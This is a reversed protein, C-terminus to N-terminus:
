FIEDKSGDKRSKKEIWVAFALFVASVAFLAAWMAVPTIDGTVPVDLATVTGDEGRASFVWAIKGTLKQFENDMEPSLALSVSLAKKEGANFEGLSIGGKMSGTESTGSVPGKYLLREGERVEIQACTNMFRELLKRQKQNETQGGAEEARLFLEARQDSANEVIVRQLRACGPTLNKFAYFLDTGDAEVQFGETKGLFKIRADKSEYAERWVTDFDKVSVNWLDSAAEGAQISEMCVVIQADKGRYSNGAKSSLTYSEMLPEKVTEGARLVDKYYFWGDKRQEWWTHNYDIEIVDTNLSDDKRFEGNESREGFEKEVSVRVLIDVTGENKVRVEKKIQQTPDVHGPTQYNETLVAKYSAMTLINLTRKETKWYGYVLTGLLIATAFVVALVARGKKSDM